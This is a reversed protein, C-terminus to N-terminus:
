HSFYLFSKSYESEDENTGTVNGDPSIRLYRDKVYMRIKRSTGTIHSLNASRESRPTGNTDQSPPIPAALSSWCFVLLVVKWIWCILMGTLSLGHGSPDGGDSVVTVAVRFWGVSM